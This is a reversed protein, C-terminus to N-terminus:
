KKLLMFGTASVHQESPFGCLFYVFLSLLIPGLNLLVGTVANATFQWLRCPQETLLLYQRM